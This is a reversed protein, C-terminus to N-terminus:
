ALPAAVTVAFLGDPDTLLRELGLGARAARM